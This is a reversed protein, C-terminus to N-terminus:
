AARPRGPTVATPDRSRVAEPVSDGLLLHLPTSRAQFWREAQFDRLILVDDMNDMNQLPTFLCPDLLATVVPLATRM